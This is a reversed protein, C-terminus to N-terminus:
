ITLTEDSSSSEMLECTQDLLTECDSLRPGTAVITALQPNLDQESDGIVMPMATLARRVRSLVVEIHDTDVNSLVTVFSGNELRGVRDLRRLGGGILAGFHRAMDGSDEMAERRMADLEPIRIVVVAFPESMRELREAAVQIADLTGARNVLGTTPDTSTFLDLQLQLRGVEMRATDLEEELGIMRERLNELERMSTTGEAGDRLDITENVDNPATKRSAGSM